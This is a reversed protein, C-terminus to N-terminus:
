GSRNIKTWITWREPKEQDLQHHFATPHRHERKKKSLLNFGTSQSQWSRSNNPVPKGLADRTNPIMLAQNGSEVALWVRKGDFKQTSIFQQLGNKFHEQIEFCFSFFSSTLESMDRTKIHRPHLCKRGPKWCRTSSPHDKKAMAICLLSSKSRRQEHASKPVPFPM